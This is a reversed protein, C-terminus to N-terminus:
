LSPRERGKLNGAIMLDDVAKRQAANREKDYREQAKTIKVEVDALKKELAARKAEAQNAAKTAREAEALKWKITAASKSRRAATTADAAKKRQHQLLGRRRASIAATGIRRLGGAVFILRLM